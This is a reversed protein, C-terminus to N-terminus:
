NKIHSLRPNFGPRFIGIKLHFVAFYKQHVSFVMFVSLYFM